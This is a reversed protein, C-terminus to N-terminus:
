NGAAHNVNLDPTSLLSFSVLSTNSVEAIYDLLLHLPDRFKLVDSGPCALLHRICDKVQSNAPMSIVETDPGYDYGGPDSSPGAAAELRRPM